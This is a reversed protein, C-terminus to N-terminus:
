SVTCNKERSRGGAIIKIAMLKSGSSPVLLQASCFMSVTDRDMIIPINRLRLHSESARRFGLILDREDQAIIPWRGHRTYRQEQQYILDILVLVLM